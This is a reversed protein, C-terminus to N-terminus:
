TSEGPRGGVLLRYFGWFAVGAHFRFATAGISLPPVCAQALDVDELVRLRPHVASLDDARRLGSRFRAGARDVAPCWWPRGLALSSVADVLIESGAPARLAVEGLLAQVQRPELYMLLGECMVLVPRDGELGLRSWWGPQTLDAGVLRHRRTVSPLRAQRFAVVAPLDVDVWRNGGNDLWQFYDALGCGLNVGESRPWRRFFAQARDRFIRTRVLMGLATAPDVAHSRLDEEDLTAVVARASADGVAAFPFWLDGWARALL